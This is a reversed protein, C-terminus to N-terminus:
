LYLIIIREEIKGDSIYEIYFSENDSKNRKVGENPFYFLTQNNVTDLEMTPILRFGAGVYNSQSYSILSLCIMISLLYIAKM